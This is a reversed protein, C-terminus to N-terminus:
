EGNIASRICPIADRVLRCSGGGVGGRIAIFGDCNVNLKIAILRVLTDYCTDVRNFYGILIGNCVRCCWTVQFFHMQVLRIAFQNQDVCKSVLM